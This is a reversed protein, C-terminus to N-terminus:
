NLSYYKSLKINLLTPKRVNCALKNENRTGFMQCQLDVLSLEIFVECNFVLLM